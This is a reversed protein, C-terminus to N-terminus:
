RGLRMDASNSYKRYSLTHVQNYMRLSKEMGSVWSTYLQSGLKMHETALKEKCFNYGLYFNNAFNHSQQCLLGSYGM